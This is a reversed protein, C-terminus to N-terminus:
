SRNGTTRLHTRLCGLTFTHGIHTQICNLSPPPAPLHLPLISLVLVSLGLLLSLFFSSSAAALLAFLSVPHIWMLSRRPLLRPLFSSPCASSSPPSILHQPHWCDLAVRSGKCNTAAGYINKFLTHKQDPKQNHQQHEDPASCAQLQLWSCNKM